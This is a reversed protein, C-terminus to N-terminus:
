KAVATVDEKRLAALLKKDSKYVDKFFLAQGAANTYHTIYLLLVPITTDLNIVTTKKSALIAPITDNRWGTKNALVLEALTLPKNVRICGHSMAREDRGFLNRSPTDHLYISYPNPLEFKVLGLANINGPKQRIIYPFNRSTFQNFNVSSPSVEQGQRNLLMMNQGALYNPNRKLKPLMEKSAISYPVTWTPNFVVRQMNSIFFPTANFPAGIIVETSWSVTDNQFFWLRYQATNVLIYSGGLNGIVWRAREMNVLIADVKDEISINLLDLTTKGVVSDPYLGHADQFKALNGALEPTYIMLTDPVLTDLFGEAFLREKLKPVLANTDGIEIKKKTSTLKLPQWSVSDALMKRYRQLSARMGAYLAQHPRVQYFYASLKNGTKAAILLDSLPAATERLPFNWTESITKPDVKGILLHRGYKLLAHTLMIDLAAWSELDMKGDKLRGMMKEVETGSYDRPNLGDAEIEKLQKFVSDALVTTIWAPKFRQESYFRILQESETLNLGYVLPEQGAEGAGLLQGIFEAIGLTDANTLHASFMGTIRPPPPAVPAPADGKEKSKNGCAALFIITLLSAIIRGM